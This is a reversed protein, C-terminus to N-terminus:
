MVSGRLQSMRPVDQETLDMNNFRSGIGAQGSETTSLFSAPRGYASSDVTMSARIAANAGAGSISRWDTSITSMRQDVVQSFRKSKEARKMRQYRIYYFTAVAIILIPIIVAAAISGGPSGRLINKVDQIIGGKSSSSKPSANPDSSNYTAVFIPGAPISTMFSPTGHSVITLQLNITANNDWWAPNITM